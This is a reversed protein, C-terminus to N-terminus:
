NNKRKKAKKTNAWFTGQALAVVLGLLLAWRYSSIGLGTLHAFRAVIWVAASNALWLVTIALAKNNLSIGRAKVFDWIVWALFTIWFGSYVAAELGSFRYTGIVVDVTFISAALFLLLPWFFIYLLRNQLIIV